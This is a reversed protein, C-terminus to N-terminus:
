VPMSPSMLRMTEFPVWSAAHLRRSGTVGIAVDL